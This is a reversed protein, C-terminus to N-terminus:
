LSEGEYAHDMDYFPDDDEPPNLWHMEGEFEYKFWQDPEELEAVDFLSGPFVGEDIGWRYLNDTDEVGYGLDFVENALEIPDESVAVVVGDFWRVFVHLSM